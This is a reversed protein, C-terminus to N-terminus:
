FTLLLVLQTRGLTTTSFFKGVSTWQPFCTHHWFRMETDLPALIAPSTCWNLKKPTPYPVGCWWVKEASITSRLSATEQSGWMGADTYPWRKGAAHIKIWWQVLSAELKAPGLGKSQQVMPGKCTSASTKTSRWLLSTQRTLRKWPSPKQSDTGINTTTPSRPCKISNRTSVRDPKGLSTGSTAINPQQHSGLNVVGNVTLQQVPNSTGNCSDPFRTRHVNNLRAVANQIKVPRLRGLVINRTATDLRPM